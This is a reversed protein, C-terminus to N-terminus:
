FSSALVTAVMIEIAQLSDACFSLLPILGGFGAGVCRRGELEVRANREPLGDDILPEPSLGGFLFIM